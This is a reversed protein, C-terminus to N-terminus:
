ENSAGFTQVEDVIVVSKIEALWEIAAPTINHKQYVVYGASELVPKILLYLWSKGVGPKGKIQIHIIQDNM